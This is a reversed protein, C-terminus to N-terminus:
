GWGEQGEAQERRRVLLLDVLVNVEPGCRLGGGVRRREKRWVGLSGKNHVPQVCSIWAWRLESKVKRSGEGLHQSCPCSRYPVQTLGTFSGSACIQFM